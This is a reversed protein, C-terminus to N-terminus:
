SLVAVIVLMLVACALSPILLLGAIALPSYGAAFARYDSLLAAQWVFHSVAHALFFCTYSALVVRLWRTGVPSQVLMPNKLERDNYTDWSRWAATLADWPDAPEIGAPRVRN